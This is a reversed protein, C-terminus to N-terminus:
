APFRDLWRNEEARMAAKEADSADTWGCLHLVGHVLVRHIETSFSVKYSRANERVRDISVFLDGSVVNGARYDFTIIDTFYDHQLANKNVELLYADSCFILEIEGLECGHATIVAEFWTRIRRKDRCTWTVDVSSFGVAM